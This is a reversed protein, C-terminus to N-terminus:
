FNGTTLKKNVYIRYGSSRLIVNYVYLYLLKISSFEKNLINNIFNDGLRSILQVFPRAFRM